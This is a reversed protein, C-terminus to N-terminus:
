PCLGLEHIAGEVTKRVLKHGIARKVATLGNWHDVWVRHTFTFLQGERVPHVAAVSLGADFFHSFYFDREAVAGWSPQLLAMRHSLVFMPRGEVEVRGWFFDERADSPTARPYEVWARWFEPYLRPFTTADALSRHFEAAPTATESGRRAYGAIGAVGRERYARHRGLLVRRLIEEVDTSSPEEPAAAALHEFQDIEEISLNLGFGPHAALYRRAEERRAPELTLAALEEVRSDAGLAGFAMEAAQPTMPRNALFPALIQTPDGEVLCAVGLALERESVERLTAVATEGGAIRQAAGPDHPTNEGLVQALPPPAETAWVHEGCVLLWMLSAAIWRCNRM